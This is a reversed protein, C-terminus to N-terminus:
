AVLRTRRELPRTFLEALDAAQDFGHVPTFVLEISWKTTLGEAELPNALGLGCVVIDPRAARCRDLQRELDQGESLPTGAPLLALESAVLQRHLYPTGVEVPVMGMERALFRALPVELQSDPFFFVKRGELQTRHRALARAARERRPGVVSVFKTAEVNFERAIAQLWLTTGEAGFPFPAALRRAGRAELARATDALFPQALVFRTGPGVPPMDGAHRAPFFHVPGIGLGDFVRRFQDEVIDAISGVVMLARQESAPLEPVLAALCTDEGQTFTTDIGSGTYSLIRVRPSFNRSLREAARSLDLKIVESPCSGVLFLMKIDPRRELLRTVVRDLEANADALGALDRDDIIATAFRPEAFIMVGAASQLLHACTRSGVVLFFADQIKRHLWVIGALGCFVERQGREHLVPADGCGQQMPAPAIDIVANM